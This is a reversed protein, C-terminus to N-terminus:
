FLFTTIFLSEYLRAWNKQYYSYPHLTDYENVEQVIVEPDPVHSSFTFIPSLLTLLLLFSLPMGM